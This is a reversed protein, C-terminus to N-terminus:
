HFLIGGLFNVGAAVAAVVPAGVNGGGHFSRGRINITTVKHASSGYQV